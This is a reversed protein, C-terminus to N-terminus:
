GAEVRNVLSPGLVQKKLNQLMKFLIKRGKVDLKKNTEHNKLFVFTKVQNVKGKVLFVNKHSFFGMDMEIIRQNCLDKKLRSQVNPGPWVKFHALLIPKWYIFTNCILYKAM